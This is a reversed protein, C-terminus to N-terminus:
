LRTTQSCESPHKELLFAISKVTVKIIADYVNDVLDMVCADSHFHKERAQVIMIIDPIDQFIALIEKRKNSAGKVLQLFINYTLM